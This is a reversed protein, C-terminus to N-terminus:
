IKSSGTQLNNQTLIHKATELTEGKDKRVKESNKGLSFRSIEIELNNNIESGAKANMHM